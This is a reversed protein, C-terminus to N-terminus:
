RYTTDISMISLNKYRLIDIIFSTFNLYDLEDFM